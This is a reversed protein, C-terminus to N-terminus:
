LKSVITLVVIITLVYLLGVLFTRHGAFRGAVKREVSQVAGGEDEWAALTRAM